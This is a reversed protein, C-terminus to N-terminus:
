CGKNGSTSRQGTKINIVIILLVKVASMFMKVCKETPKQLSLVYTLTKGVVMHWM